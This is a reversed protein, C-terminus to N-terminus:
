CKNYIILENFKIEIADLTDVFVNSQKLKGDRSIGIKDGWFLHDSKNFNKVSDLDIKVNDYMATKILEWIPYLIAEFNESYRQESRYDSNTHTCIFIRPSLDYTDTTTWNETNENAEWVLWVLPYKTLNNQDKLNHVKTLELYTGFEYIPLVNNAEDYIARVATMVDGFVRPFFRFDTM